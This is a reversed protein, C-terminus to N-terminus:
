TPLHPDADPGPHEIQFLGLVGIPHHDIQQMGRVIKYPRGTVICLAQQFAAVCRTPSCKLPLYAKEM